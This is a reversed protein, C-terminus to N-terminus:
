SAMLGKARAWKMVENNVQNPADEQVWHSVGVLRTLTFDAVYKENGYTNEIDLAVDNQGWIMLTPVEVKQRIADGASLMAANARYYNIMATAAGPQVINRRYIELLEPSFNPSDRQLMDTLGRGGNRTLAKEPLWPIRFFAIYWSRFKQRWTQWLVREFVAPHPANLIILGDLPVAKRIAVYWAIMGGWDHAMLIRRKAPFAQFLAAVDAVLNDIHYPKEGELRTSEGYGRMDPAVVHWGADALVPLQNRWAQRAEPFGHLFLALTDGSGAEDIAFTLGNAEIKRSQIEAM